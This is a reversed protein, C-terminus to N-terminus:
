KRKIRWYALVFIVLIIEIPVDPVKPPIATEAGNVDNQARTAFDIGKQIQQDFNKLNFGHWLPAIDDKVSIANDIDLQANKVDKGSAKADSIIKQTSAVLDQFETSKDIANKADKPISSLSPLKIPNHCRSCLTVINDTNPVQFTHPSHCTICSPALSETKLRQYHMSNEFSKLEETHCNGCTEPINVFYITSNQDTKNLIGLHSESKSTGTPNGGHCKDCTVFYSAHASSSWQQFNDIVRKKMLDKHCDLSCAVKRETHNNIINNFPFQVDAYSSATKHCNICSNNSELGSNPIDANVGNIYILFIIIILFYRRTKKDLIKDMKKKINRNNNKNM